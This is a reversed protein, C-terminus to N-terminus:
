KKDVGNVVSGDFKGNSTYWNGNYPSANKFTGEFFSKNSLIYKGKEYYGGKFTGIYKGGSSFTLTAYGTTDECVGNVFQGEYVSAPINGYKSFKASGKGNPLAGLTDILEGTYLYQRMNAPGSSVSIPYDEVQKSILSDSIDVDSSGSRCSKMSIIGGCLCAIVAIFIIVIKGISPKPQQYIYTSSINLWRRLDSIMHSLAQSSKGDVQQKMGYTFEFADTLPSGDINVFVIRKNRREAFTLERVTWDTEFDIIKSHAKSYMFLVVECENIAKIIVDAFQADSEIGDLDIWCKEGLASEIQDKIKFVRDKDVRKYSIFIRAM